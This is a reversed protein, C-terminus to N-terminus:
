NERGVVPDLRGELAAKTIDDGFNDLAPTDTNGGSKSRTQQKQQGPQNGNGSSPLAEDDPDDETFGSGDITAPFSSDSGAISDQLLSWELGEENLVESALNNNEKLIALLLHETDIVESKFGRSELSRAELFVMKLVREASKTLPLDVEIPKPENRTVRTEINSKVKQLDVDLKSLQLYANSDRERLIGLLLHEPAIAENGLRQAEERSYGIVDRVGQSFKAANM